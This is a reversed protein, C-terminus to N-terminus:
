PAPSLFRCAPAPAGPLCPLRPLPLRPLPLCGAGRAARRLHSGVRFPAGRAGAFCVPCTLGARGLSGPSESRSRMWAKVEVWICAPVELRYFRFGPGEFMVIQVLM